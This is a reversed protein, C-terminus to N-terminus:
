FLCKSVDLLDAPTNRKKCKGVCILDEWATKGESLNVSCKKNLVFYFDPWSKVCNRASLPAKNPEAVLSSFTNKKALINNSNLFLKLDTIQCALEPLSDFYMNKNDKSKSPNEPFLTWRGLGKNNLIRAVILDNQLPIQFEVPLRPFVFNLISELNYELIPELDKVIHEQHTYLSGGDSGNSNLDHAKIPMNHAILYGPSQPPTKMKANPIGTAIGTSNDDPVTNLNILPCPAM